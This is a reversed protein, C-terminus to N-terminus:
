TANFLFFLGIMISFAYSEALNIPKWGCLHPFLRNWVARFAFMYVIVSLVISLLITAAQLGDREPFMWEVMLPATEEDTWTPFLLIACGILAMTMGINFPVTVRM